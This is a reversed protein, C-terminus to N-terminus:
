EFVMQNKQMADVFKNKEEMFDAEDMKFVRLFIQTATEDYLDGAAEGAQLISCVELMLDTKYDHYISM